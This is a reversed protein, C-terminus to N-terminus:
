LLLSISVILHLEKGQIKGDRAYALTYTYTIRPSYIPCMKEM